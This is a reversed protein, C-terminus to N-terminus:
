FRGESRSFGALAPGDMGSTLVAESRREVRMSGGWSQGRAGARSRRLAGRWVMLVVAAWSRRPGCRWSARALRQGASPEKALRWACRKARGHGLEDSVVALRWSAETCHVVAGRWAGLAEAGSRRAWTWRARRADQGCYHLGAGCCSRSLEAWRRDGGRAEPSAGGAECDSALAAGTWSSELWQAEEALLACVLQL